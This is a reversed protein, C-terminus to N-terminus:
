GARRGGAHKAPAKALAELQAARTRYLAAVAAPGKREARARLVAWEARRAKLVTPPTGAKVAQAYAQSMQRRLAVLESARCAEDSAKAGTCRAVPKDAGSKTPRADAEALEDSGKGAKAKHVAAPAHREAAVKEVKEPAPEPPQAEVKVKTAAAEAPASPDVAPAAADSVPTTNDNGSPTAAPTILPAEAPIPAAPAIEPAPPPPPLAAKPPPIDAWADLQRNPQTVYAVGFAVCLGAAWAAMTQGRSMGRRRAPDADPERQLRLGDDWGDGLPRTLDDQSFGNDTTGPM